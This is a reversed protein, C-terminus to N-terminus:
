ETCPFAEALAQGTLTLAKYRLLRPREELFHVTVEVLRESNADPPICARFGIDLLGDGYFSWDYIATIFGLCFDADEGRCKALLTNGDVYGHEGDGSAYAVRAAQCFGALLLVLLTRKWM